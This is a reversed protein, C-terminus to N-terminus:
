GPFPKGNVLLVSAHFKKGAMHLTGPRKPDTYYWVSTAKGYSPNEQSFLSAAQQSTYGPWFARVFDRGRGDKEIWWNGEYVQNQKWLKCHGESAFHLMYLSGSQRTIGFVAPGVVLTQFTEAITDPVSAMLMCPLAVISIFLSRFLNSYM